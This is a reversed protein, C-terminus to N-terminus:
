LNRAIIGSAIKELAKVRRIELKCKPCRSREDTYKPNLIQHSTLYCGCMGCFDIWKRKPADVAKEPRDIGELWIPVPFDFDWFSETGCERCCYQVFSPDKDEEPHDLLLAEDQACLDKECNPCYCRTTPKKEKKFPWM